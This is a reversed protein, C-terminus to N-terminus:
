LQKSFGYTGIKKHINWYEGVNYIFPDAETFDINGKEDLVKKDIHVQVIEGLFLDHTGLSIKDKLICEMNVPCEHILPVKVKDAYEPTLGTESFKNTDKGSTVGCYDTEKLIKTSPINVVFEKINEILKHSYRTPRIGLAIMPPESCVTGAWALTIINPKRMSDLCTVLVVPCPFLATFPKKRIKM